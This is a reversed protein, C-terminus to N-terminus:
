NGEMLMRSNDFDIGSEEVGSRTVGWSLAGTRGDLGIHLDLIYFVYEKKLSWLQCGDKNVTLNHGTGPEQRGGEWEVHGRQSKLGRRLLDRAYNKKRFISKLIKSVLLIAVFLFHNKVNAKDLSHNFLSGLLNQNISRYHARM